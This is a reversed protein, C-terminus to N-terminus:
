LPHHAKLAFCKAFLNMLLCVNPILARRLAPRHVQTLLVEVDLKLDHLLSDLESAKIAFHEHSRRCHKEWERLRDM